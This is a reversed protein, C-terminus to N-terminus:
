TGRKVSHPTADWEYKEACQWQLKTDSRTYVTSLCKGRQAKALAQM